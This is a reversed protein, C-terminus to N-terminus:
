EPTCEPVCKNQACKQGQPCDGSSQCQAKQVCANDRCVTGPKQACQADDRCDRCSGNICVQAHDKCDGDDRCEPYAPPKPCGFLLVTALLAARRMHARRGLTAPGTLSVVWMGMTLPITSLASRAAISASCRAKGRCEHVPM